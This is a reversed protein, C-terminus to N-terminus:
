EENSWYTWGDTHVYITRCALSSVLGFPDYFRFGKISDFETNFLEENDHTYKKIIEPDIGMAKIQNKRDKTFYAKM